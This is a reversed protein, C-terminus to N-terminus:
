KGLDETLEKWKSYKNQFNQLSTIRQTNTQDENEDNVDLTTAKIVCDLYEMEKM